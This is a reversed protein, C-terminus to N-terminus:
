GQERSLEPVLKGGTKADYRLQLRQISVTQRFFTLFNL